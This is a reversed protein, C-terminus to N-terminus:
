GPSGGRLARAGGVGFGGLAGAFSAPDVFPTQDTNGELDGEKVERRPTAHWRTNRLADGSVNM